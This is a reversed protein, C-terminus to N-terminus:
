DLWIDFRQASRDSSASTMAQRTARLALLPDELLALQEYFRTFFAAAVADDSPWHSALVQRAGAALLDSVLPPRGSTSLAAEPARRQMQSLSVLRASAPAAALGAPPFRTRGLGRGPESLELYSAGPQAPTLVAPMALHVLSARAYAPTLFEDPLLASGQVVTLNPGIFPQMVAGLERNSGIRELFGPSFDTPAGALWLGGEQPRVRVPPAPKRAPFSALRYVRHRDGFRERGLALANLPVGALAANAPVYITEPLAQQLPGLLRDGWQSMLADFASGDLVSADRVLDPWSGAELARGLDWQRTGNNTALVALWRTESFYFDLVAEHQGLDAVWQQLAERKLFRLLSRHQVRVTEMATLLEAQENGRLSQSAQRALDSRMQLEAEAADLGTGEWWSDSAFPLALGEDAATLWRVRALGLLLDLPKQAQALQDLYNQQLKEIHQWYWSGLVGPLVYRTFTLEEVLRNMTARAGAADGGRRQLKAWAWRGTAAHRPMASQLLREYAARVQGTTCAPQLTCLETQALDRWSQPAQARNALEALPVAARNRPGPEAIADQAREWDWSARSAPTNLYAQQAQRATRMRQWQEQARAVSALVSIGYGVDLVATPRRYADGGPVTVAARAWREAQDLDGLEFFARAQELQLQARTASNHEFELAQELVELAAPYRYTQNLLRAQRLLNLALEDGAGEELLQTEIAKLVASSATVDNQSGHIALLSERIETALDGAAITDALQLAAQYRELARAADNRAAFDLGSLFLASAREFQQGQAVAARLSREAAQQVPDQQGQDPLPAGAARLAALARLELQRLALEITRYRRLNPDAYLLQVQELAAHNDGMGFQTLQAAYFRSWLRLEDMGFHEFLRAANNLANVRVSWGAASNDESLRLAFSLWQYAQALQRSRDDRVTIRSFGVQFTSRNTVLPAKLRIDLQREEAAPGVYMFLPALRVAPLASAQLLEGQIDFMRAEFEAELGDIRVLLAEDTQQRVFYERTMGLESASVGSILLSLCLLALMNLRQSRILQATWRGLKHCYQHM